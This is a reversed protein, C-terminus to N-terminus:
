PAQWYEVWHTVPEELEFVEFIEPGLPPVVLVELEGVVVVRCGAAAETLWRHSQPAIISIAIKAM